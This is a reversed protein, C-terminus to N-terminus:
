HLNGNEILMQTEANLSEDRWNKWPYTNRAKIIGEEKHEIYWLIEDWYDSTWYWLLTFLNFLTIRIYPVNYMEPIDDKLKYDICSVCIEFVSALPQCFSIPINKPSGIYFHRKLPKFYKEIEQIFLFILEFWFYFYNMPLFLSSLKILLRNM